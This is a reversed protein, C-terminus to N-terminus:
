KAGEFQVKVRSGDPKKVDNLYQDIRQRAEPPAVKMKILLHTQAPMAMMSANQIEQGAQQLSCALAELGFSKLSDLQAMWDPAGGTIIAIVAPVLHMAIQKISETACNVVMTAIQGPKSTCDGRFVCCSSMSLLAISLTVALVLRHWPRM